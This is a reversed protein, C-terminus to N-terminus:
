RIAVDKYLALQDDTTAEAVLGRLTLVSLDVGAYTKGFAKLVAIYFCDGKDAVDVQRFGCANTFM